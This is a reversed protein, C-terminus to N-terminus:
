SILHPRKVDLAFYHVITGKAFQAVVKYTYVGEQTPTTVNLRQETFETAFIGEGEYVFIQQAPSSFNILIPTDPLADYAILSVDLSSVFPSRVVKSGFKWEYGARPPDPVSTYGTTVSIIPLSKEPNRSDLMDKIFVTIYGSVVLLIVAIIYRKIQRNYHDKM